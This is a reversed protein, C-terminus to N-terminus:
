VDREQLLKEAAFLHLHEQVAKGVGETGRYISAANIGIKECLHLMKITERVPVVLKLLRDIYDELGVVRLEEGRRGRHPHVTFLGDQAAIRASVSGAARIIRVGKHSAVEDMAWIALMSDERWTDFVSLASSAAFYLAIYPNGTWDLLRTNVGYHQALAMIELFKEVPWTEYELTYQRYSHLRSRFEISDNPIRIGANDAYDAFTQLAYLEIFVQDEVLVEGRSMQWLTTLPNNERLVSPILKMSDDSQGRFITEHRLNDGFLDRTPSLAEWLDDATEFKRVQIM